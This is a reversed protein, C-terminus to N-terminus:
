PSKELLVGPRYDHDDAALARHLAQHGQNWRQRHTDMMHGKHENNIETSIVSFRDM